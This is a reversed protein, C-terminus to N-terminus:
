TEEAEQSSPNCTDAVKFVRLLGGERRGGKEGKRGGKREEKGGGGKQCPRVKYDLRVKFEHGDEQRLRINYTHAYPNEAWMSRHQTVLVEKPNSLPFTVQIFKPLKKEGHANFQIM